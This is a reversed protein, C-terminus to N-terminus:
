GTPPTSATARCTSWAPSSASTATPACSCGSGSASSALSKIERSRARRDIILGQSDLTCFNGRAAVDRPGGRSGLARRIVAADGERWAEACRDERVFDADGSVQEDCRVAVDDYRDTIRIGGTIDRRVRLQPHILLNIGLDHRNLEMTVSDVLFPMDDTVIDILIRGPELGQAGREGREDRVRVLARGQPRHTGFSVHELAVTAVRAPGRDALDEPAVFRYYRRLFGLLDAPKPRADTGHGVAARGLVDAAATEAGWRAAERLIADKQDDLSMAM